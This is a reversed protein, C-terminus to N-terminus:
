IENFTKKLTKSIQIIKEIPIWPDTPLEVLNKIISETNQCKLNSYDPFKKYKSFWLKDCIEQYLPQKYIPCPYGVNLHIKIKKEISSILKKRKSYKKKMLIPFKYFSHVSHSPVIPSSIEKVDSLEESYIKARQIRADILTSAKKLQIRGIKAFIENMRFNYGLNEHHNHKSAGHSRIMKCKRMTNKSNTVIMGGEGLKLHKSDYFSFVGADGFVGTQKGHYKSGLSQACDEILFSDHEKCIKLIEKIKFPLGYLHVGIIGGVTSNMKNKLQIPDINLSDLEVDAFIPISGVYLISNSTSIFSLPTTLIKDRKTNNLVQLATHLGATGTSVGIAYSAGVYQAFEKEFKEVEIGQVINGSKIIELVEKLENNQLWFSDADVM